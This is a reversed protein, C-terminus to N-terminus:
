GEDAQRRWSATLRRCLGRLYGRGHDRAAHPPRAVDSDYFEAKDDIDTQRGAAIKSRTWTTSWRIRNRAIWYHSQCKSSWNGISPALSITEGDYTMRWETPALPTVTETGCGCLCLHVVTSYPISIYLIREDLADPIQEVFRHEITTARTV